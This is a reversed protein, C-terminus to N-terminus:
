EQFMLKGKLIFPSTYGIPDFFSQIDSLVDRKCLDGKRKDKGSRLTLLDHEPIWKLGMADQACPLFSHIGLDRAKPARDTESVQELVDQSNTSWKMTTFRSDRFINEDGPINQM